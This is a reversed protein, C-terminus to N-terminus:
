FSWRRISNAYRPRSYGLSASWGSARRRSDAQRDRAITGPTVVKVRASRGRVAAAGYGRGSKPSAYRRGSRAHEAEEEAQQQRPDLNALAYSAHRAKAEASWPEPQCRCAADFEKRYRYATKLDAYREGTEYSVMDDVDGGPNPYYYLSVPSGCQAACAEADSEVNRGATAFSIPFYYGDCQRVCMTRYSGGASPPGFARPVIKAVEEGGPLHLRVISTAGQLGGRSGRGGSSRGDIRGVGLAGSRFDRGRRSGQDASVINVSGAAEERHYSRSRPNYTGHGPMQSGFVQEFVNEAAAGFAGTFVALGLAPLLALGILRRHARAIAALKNDNNKYRMM